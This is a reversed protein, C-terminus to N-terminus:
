IHKIHRLSTKNILRCLLIYYIVYLIVIVVNWSELSMHPDDILMNKFYLFVVWIIIVYIEIKHMAHNRLKKPNSTRIPNRTFILNWIWTMSPFNLQFTPLLNMPISGFDLKTQASIKDQNLIVLRLMSSLFRKWM